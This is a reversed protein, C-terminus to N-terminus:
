ANSSNDIRTKSFVEFGTRRAQSYVAELEIGDLFEQLHPEWSVEGPVHDRFYCEFHGQMSHEIRDLIELYENLEDNENSSPRTQIKPYRIEVSHVFASSDNQPFKECLFSDICESLKQSSLERTLLFADIFLWDILCVEEFPSISKREILLQASKCVRNWIDDWTSNQDIDIKVNERRVPSVNYFRFQPHCNEDIEIFSAGHPGLDNKEIPVLSGSHHIMRLGNSFTQRQGAGGIALYDFVDSKLSREAIQPSFQEDNSSVILRFVGSEQPERNSQMLGLSIKVCPLNQGFELMVSPNDAHLVTVNEALSPLNEWAQYPDKAGPVVVVKIAHDNLKELGHLLAVQAPLSRDEAQFCNGCCLLFDVEQEICCDILNEFALFTAERIKALCDRNPNGIGRLPFDLKLNAVQVFRVVSGTM